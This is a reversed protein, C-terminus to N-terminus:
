QKKYVLLYWAAVAAIVIVAVIGIVIIMLNSIGGEVNYTWTQSATNGAADSVELTVTHEGSDFGGDPTYTIQSATVDADATVDEGDVVLSVSNLDIGSRDDSYSASVTADQGATSGPSPQLNSITPRVTDTVEQVTFSWSRTDSNGFLDSATVEVDHSGFSLQSSPTYTVGSDTVTAQSTVDSGDFMISVNATDVGVGDDSYDVGITPTRQDTQGTPRANSFTPPADDFGGASFTSLGSIGSTEFFDWISDDHGSPTAIPDAGENHWSGDHFHGLSVGSEPLVFGRHTFLTDQIFDDALKWQIALNSVADNADSSGNRFEFDFFWRTDAVDGPDPVGSPPSDRDFRDLDVIANTNRRTTQFTIKVFLEDGTQFNLTVDANPALDGLNATQSTGPSVTRSVSSQGGGGPTGPDGGGGPSPASQITVTNDTAVSQLSQLASSGTFVVGVLEYSRDTTLSSPWTVPVTWTLVVKHADASGDGGFNYGYGEGYGAGGQNDAKDNFVFTDDLARSGGYAPSTETCRHTTVRCDYGYGGQLNGAEDIFTDGYGYGTGKAQLYGRGFADAMTYTGFAGATNGGIKVECSVASADFNQGYGPLAEVGSNDSGCDPKFRIDIPVQLDTGTKDQLKLSVHEIPIREDDEITLSVKVSDTSTKEPSTDPVTLDVSSAQSVDFFVIFVSAVLLASFLIALGKKKQGSPDWVM